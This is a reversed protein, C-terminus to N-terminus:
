DKLWNKVEKQLGADKSNIWKKLKSSFSSLKFFYHQSPKISPINGCLSCKPNVLDTGKLVSGCGECVDGYQDAIGCLPCTGRVYRDPLTRKCSQCYIVDINKTYILGKKKLETFFHEALEKNEKSHTKYYNDFAILFSAFDEQHEKWYKEVFIEPEVGAKKANVEIPTGHMDSACIYLIDKGTSRLFRAYIDAQVYELLHGIHIPGNAYPLAGTVVYKAPSKM